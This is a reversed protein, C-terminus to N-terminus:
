NKLDTKTVVKTITRHKRIMHENIHAIYHCKKPCITCNGNKDMAICDKKVQGDGYICDSHCNSNM